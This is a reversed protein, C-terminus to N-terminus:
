QFKFQGATCLSIHISQSVNTLSISLHKGIDSLGGDCHAMRM